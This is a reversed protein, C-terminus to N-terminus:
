LATVERAWITPPKAKKILRDVINNIVSGGLARENISLSFRGKKSVGTPVGVCGVILDGTFLVEDGRM